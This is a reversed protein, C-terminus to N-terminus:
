DCINKYQYSQLINFARQRSFGFWEGIQTPTAKEKIMNELKSIGGRLSYKQEFFNRSFKKPNLMKLNKNQSLEIRENLVIVDVEKPNEWQLSLKIKPFRMRLRLYNKILDFLRPVYTSLLFERLEDSVLYVKDHCHPCYKVFYGMGGQNCGLYEGRGIKKFSM